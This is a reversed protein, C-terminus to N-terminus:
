GLYSECDITVYNEKRFLYLFNEAGCCTVRYDEPLKSLIAILEKVTPCGIPVGTRGCLRAMLDDIIKADNQIRERWAGTVADDQLFECNWYNVREVLEDLYHAIPENEPEEIDVCNLKGTGDLCIGYGHGEVYGLLLKAEEITLALDREESNAWMAFDEANEFFNKMSEAVCNKEM